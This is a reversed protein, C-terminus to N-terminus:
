ENHYKEGKIITYGRYVQEMTLIRAMDHTLTLHSLSMIYDARDKLIQHAGHPGAIIIVLQSLSINMKHQMWKSLEISTMHNGREDMLVVYDSPTLEDMIQKAEVRKQEETSLNKYRAEKLMVISIRTYHKLRDEYDKIVSRFAQDKTTGLWLFKIKMHQFLHLTVHGNHYICYVLSSLTIM